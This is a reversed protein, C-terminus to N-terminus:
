AQTNHITSSISLLVVLESPKPLSLALKSILNALGASFARPYYPYDSYHPTTYHLLLDRPNIEPFLRLITYRCYLGTSISTPLHLLTSYLLTSYLLNITSYLVTCYLIDYLQRPSHLIAVTSYLLLPPSISSLDFYLVTSYRNCLYLSNVRPPFHRGLLTSYLLSPTPRLIRRKTRWNGM